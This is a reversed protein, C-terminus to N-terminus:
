QNLIQYTSLATDETNVTIYKLETRITFLVFLIALLIVNTIIHQM